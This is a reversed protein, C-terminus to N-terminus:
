FRSSNLLFSRCAQFIFLKPKNQLPLCVDEAFKGMIWDRSIVEGDHSYFGQKNGHSMVILVAMDSDYHDECSAFLKITEVFNDFELNEHVAM